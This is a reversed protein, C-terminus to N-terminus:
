VGVPGGSSPCRGTSRCGSRTRGATRPTAFRRTPALRSSARGRSCRTVKKPGLWRRTTMLATDRACILLQILARRGRTSFMRPGAAVRARHLARVGASGSRRPMCFAMGARHRGRLHVVPPDEGSWRSWAVSSLRATRRRLAPTFACQANRLAAMSSNAFGPTGQPMRVLDPDAAIM